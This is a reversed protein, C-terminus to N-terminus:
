DRQVFLLQSVIYMRQLCLLLGRASQFLDEELTSLTHDECFENAFEGDLICFM